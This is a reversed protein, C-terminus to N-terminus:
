ASPRPPDHDARPSWEAVPVNREPEFVLRGPAQWFTAADFVAITAACKALCDADCVCHGGPCDCPTKTDAAVAAAGSTRAHVHGPHALAVPSWGVLALLVLIPILWPLQRCM